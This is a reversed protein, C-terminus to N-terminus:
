TVRCKLLKLRPRRVTLFKEERSAHLQGRRLRVKVQLKRGGKQQWVGIATMRRNSGRVSFHGVHFIGRRSFHMRCRVMPPKQSRSLGSSRAVGSPALLLALVLVCTIRRM